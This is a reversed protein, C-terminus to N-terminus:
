AVPPSLPDPLAYETDAVEEIFKRYHSVAIVTGGFDNLIRARRRAIM